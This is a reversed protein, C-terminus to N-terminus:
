LAAPPIVVEVQEGCKMAGGGSGPDQFAFLFLMRIESKASHVARLICNLNGNDKRSHKNESLTRAQKQKLRWICGLLSPHLKGTWLSQKYLRIMVSTKSGMSQFSLLLQRLFDEGSSSSLFCKLIFYKSSRYDKLLQFFLIFYIVSVPATIDERKM